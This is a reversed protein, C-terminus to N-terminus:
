SEQRQQWLLYIAMVASVILLLAVAIASGYGYNNELIGRKYMYTGLIETARIPGGQTTGWILDFAKFCTTVVLIFVVATVPRLSPMTVHWFSQLPNAGDIKAAEYVQPDIAQLGAVYIVVSLGVTSWAHAIALAPLAWTFDGLWPRALVDLGLAALTTNAAGDPQYMWRWIVATTIPAQIVPLFYTVQFFTRGRIKQALLNALVLGGFVNILVIIVTWYINNSFAEWFIKDALLEQYNQLGVWDKEPSIGDWRFFSVRVVEVTPGVVFVVYLLLAPGLFLLAHGFTSWRERAGM